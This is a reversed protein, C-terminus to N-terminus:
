ALVGPPAIVVLHQKARSSGVYLLRHVVLDAEGDRLGRHDATRDLWHVNPFLRYEPPLAIRLRDHVVAEAEQGQTM